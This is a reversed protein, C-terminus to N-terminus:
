APLCSDVAAQVRKYVEEVTGSGDIVFLPTGKDKYFDLVPQTREHYIALRRTIVEPTDEPRGRDKLRLIIEERSVDFVIACLIDRGYHPLNEHLWQAQDTNRPYGDLVVRVGPQAKSLADALVKNTLTDDILEGSALRELVEPDQSNRFMEGTSLWQWNYHEVLFKGQVSKGAGPPGFFLVM